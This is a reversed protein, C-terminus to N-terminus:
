EARPSKSEAMSRSSSAKAYLARLMGASLRLVATRRALPSFIRGEFGGFLREREIRYVGEGSAFLIDEGAAPVKFPQHAVLRFRIYLEREGVLPAPKGRVRCFKQFVYVRLGSIGRCFTARFNPPRTQRCLGRPFYKLSASSRGNALANLSSVARTRSFIFRMM